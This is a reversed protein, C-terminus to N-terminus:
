LLGKFEKGLSTFTVNENNVDEQAEQNGEIQKEFSVGFYKLMEEFQGIHVEEEEKIHEFTEILESIKQKTQEDINTGIDLLSELKSKREAYRATADQEESISDRLLVEIEEILAM